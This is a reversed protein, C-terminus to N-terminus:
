LNRRRNPPQCLQHWPSYAPVPHVGMSGCPIQSRRSEGGIAAGQKHLWCSRHWKACHSIETQGVINENKRSKKAKQAARRKIQRKLSSMKAFQWWLLLWIRTFKRLNLLSITGHGVGSVRLWGAVAWDMQEEGEMRGTGGGRRRSLSANQKDMWDSVWLQM